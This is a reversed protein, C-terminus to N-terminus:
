RDAASVARGANATSNGQDTRPCEVAEPSPTATEETEQLDAVQEQSTTVKEEDAQNNLVMDENM